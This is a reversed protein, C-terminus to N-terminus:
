VRWLSFRARRMAELMRQEDSGVPLSVLKAYRDIARSRGEPATYIALDFALTLEEHSDAILTQGFALGLRRAHGLITPLTLNKLINSHHRISIARLHRYRHQIESSMSMAGEGARKGGPM